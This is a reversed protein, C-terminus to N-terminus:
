SRSEGSVNRYGKVATRIDDAAQLLTVAEGHVLAEAQSLADSGAMRDIEGSLQQGAKTQEQITQSLKHMEDVIGAHSSRVGDMSQRSSAAAQQVKAVAQVIQDHRGLVRGIGSTISSTMAQIHRTSETTKGALSRVEDAVVAFGRGHEGARAAEIAANLALLNTQDAIGQVSSVMSEIRGSIQDLEAVDMAMQRSLDDIEQIVGMLSHLQLLGQETQQFTEQSILVTKQAVANTTQLSTGLEEMAAASGTLSEQTAMATEHMRRDAEQMRQSCANLAEAIQTIRYLSVGLHQLLHNFAAAISDIEHLGVAAIPRGLDRDAAIHEIDAAIAQMPLAIKQRMWGSFVLTAVIFFVLQLVAIAWEALHIQRVAHHRIQESRAQSAKVLGALLQTPQRDIGAVARDGASPLGQAQLFTQRGQAYAATMLAHQRCFSQAQAGFDHDEEASFAAHMVQCDAAVKAVQQQFQRWYHQAQAEDHGRLLFDKWEQVQQKFDVQAQMVAHVADLDAIRREHISDIQYLLLGLSTASLLMLLAQAWYFYKRTVAALTRESSM